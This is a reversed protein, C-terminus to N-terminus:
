KPTSCRKIANELVRITEEAAEQLDGKNIFRDLGLEQMKSLLLHLIEHLATNNLADKTPTRDEWITNLSISAIRTRCNSTIWAFCAGEPDEELFYYIKWGYLGFFKRWYECRKVFYRFKKKTIKM